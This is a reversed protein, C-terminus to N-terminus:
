SVPCAIAPAVAAPRRTPQSPVCSAILAIVLVPQVRKSAAIM